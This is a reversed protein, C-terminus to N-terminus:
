LDSFIVAKPWKRVFGQKKPHRLSPVSCSRLGGIPSAETTFEKTKGSGRASRAIFLKTLEDGNVAVFVLINRDEDRAPRIEVM